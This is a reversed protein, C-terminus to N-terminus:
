FLIGWKNLLQGNQEFLRIIDDSCLFLLHDVKNDLKFSLNPVLDIHLKRGELRIFLVYM